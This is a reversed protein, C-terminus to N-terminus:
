ESDTKVETKIFQQVLTLCLWVGTAIKWTYVWDFCMTILKFMGCTAIWSLAYVIITLLIAFGFKIGMNLFKKLAM